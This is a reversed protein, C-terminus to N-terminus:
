HSFYLVITLLSLVSVSCFQSTELLLVASYGLDSREPLDQCFVHPM